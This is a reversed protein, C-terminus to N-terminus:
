FENRFAELRGRISGDILTDGVRIRVGGLLAPNLLFRIDLDAGCAGTLAASLTERRASSLPVATEVHAAHRHVDAAIRRLLEKLLAVCGRPQCAVLEAVVVRLRSEDLRGEEKALDFLRRAQRKMNASTTKM